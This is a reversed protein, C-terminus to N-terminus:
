GDTPQDRINKYEKTGITTASWLSAVCIITHCDHNLHLLSNAKNQGHMLSSPASYKCMHYEVKAYSPTKTVKNSVPRDRTILM